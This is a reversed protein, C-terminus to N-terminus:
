VLQYDQTVIKVPNIVASKKEKRPYKKGAIPDFAGAQHRVAQFIHTSQIKVKFQTFSTWSLLRNNAACWDLLM